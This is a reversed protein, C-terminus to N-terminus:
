WDPSPTSKQRWFLQGGLLEVTTDQALLSTALQQTPLSFELWTEEGATASSPVYRLKM